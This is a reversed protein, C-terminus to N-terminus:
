RFFDAISVLYDDIYCDDADKPKEVGVTVSSGDKFTFNVTGKEFDAIFYSIDEARAYCDYSLKIFM